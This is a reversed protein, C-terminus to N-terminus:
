VTCIDLLLLWDNGIRTGMSFELVLYHRIFVEILILKSLAFVRHLKGSAGSAFYIIIYLFTM